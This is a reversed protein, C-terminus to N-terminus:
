RLEERLYALIKKEERSVKVQSLGLRKAVENQSMDRFYRLLIIRRWLDPLKDIACGISLRELERECAGEDAVTAELAPADEDGGWAPETLSRVPASAELAAAAEAASVGVAEALTAVGIRSEGRAIAEEEARRLAAALRKQERSVKILGDDRLFRRIEGFILPVAYTSLASARGEDFSRIARLLGIHGIQVLDELEVGRGVFRLAIGTVLGGNARILAETAREDGARSARLLALNDRYSVEGETM